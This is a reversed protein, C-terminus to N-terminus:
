NEEDREQAGTKVMIAHTAYTDKIEYGKKLMEDVQDYPVKKVSQTQPELEKERALTELEEETFKVLHYVVGDELGVPQGESIQNDLIWDQGLLQAVEDYDKQTIALVFKREPM